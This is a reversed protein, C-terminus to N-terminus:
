AVLERILAVAADIAIELCGPELVAVEEQYLGKGYDGKPVLYSPGWHEALSAVVVSHSPFADRIAQQFVQYPEGQVAIWVGNGIRWGVMQYPYTTGSPLSELRWRLRRQREVMAHCDRVRAEDGDQQAEQYQQMWHQYDAEVSSLTPLEARYAIPVERRIVRWVGSYSSQAPDVPGAAWTGLTAGSVVPGTYNWQTQPDPIGELTSLAAYGLQRGNRDAASPEGVYNVRPGTDGSTGQIFVCPAETAKEVTERAAGPYDPSILRNDWALTTPHCGYNIITALIEGASSTVRAVMMTDDARGIPNFGCVYKQAVEDWYDRNKALSCRGIGYTFTAPALRDSVDAVLDSVTHCMASLYNAIQEGGPQDARDLSMLGAAHTHSFVFLLAEAPIQTAQHIHTRLQGLESPGLICHDLAIVVQFDEPNKIPLERAANGLVMVTARLPRHVGEAVDHTAAGWMRHYMNEPPTIDAVGINFYCRSESSYVTRATM